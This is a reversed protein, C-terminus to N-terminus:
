ARDRFVPWGAAEDVDHIPDTMVLDKMDDHATFSLDFEGRRALARCEPEPLASDAEGNERLLGYSVLSDIFRSADQGLVDNAAALETVIKEPPHGANLDRWIAGALGPLSFYLGTDLNLAVIEGDFNEAVCAPIAISLRRM